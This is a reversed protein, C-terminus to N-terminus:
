YCYYRHHSYYHGHDIRSSNRRDQNTKNSKIIIDITTQKDKNKGYNNTLTNNYVLSFDSSNDSDISVIENM